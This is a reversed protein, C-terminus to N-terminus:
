IYSALNRLTLCSGTFVSMVVTPFESFSQQLIVYWQLKMFLLLTIWLTIPVFPRYYHVESCWDFILTCYFRLRDNKLPTSFVFL